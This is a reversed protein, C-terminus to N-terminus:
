STNGSSVDIKPVYQTRLMPRINHEQVFKQIEDKLLQEEAKKRADKQKKEESIVELDVLLRGKDKKEEQERKYRAAPQKLYPM